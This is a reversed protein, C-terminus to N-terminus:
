QGLLRTMNVGLGNFLNVLRPLIIVMGLSLAMLGIAVKLPIGLFYVQMQPAVRALLGLVVDTLLVAALVPLSMQVGAAIMQGLMSLLPQVAFDPLPQNLPAVVFTRQLGMLFTHHGNIVFFILTASLIFLQDMASGSSEMAPNIVRGASFGSGQGMMEGAMQLAGFTLGAAFGALTGLMVERVVAGAFAFTAWSETEPPLPQWPLMVATLVVGLAIKVQNPVSPGALVPIQIIIALVRSLAMFFLQAQAVSITM